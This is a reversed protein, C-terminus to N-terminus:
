KIIAWAALDDIDRPPIRLSTPVLKWVGRPPHLKWYLERGRLTTRYEDTIELECIGSLLETLEKSSTGNGLCIKELTKGEIFKFDGEKIWPVLLKWEREKLSQLLVEESSKPVIASFLLRDGEVFAVGIKYRGPDVGCKIWIM